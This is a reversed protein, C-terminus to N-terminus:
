ILHLIRCLWITFLKSSCYTILKLSFSVYQFSAYFIFCLSLGLNVLDSCLSVAGLCNLILRSNCFFHWWHGSIPLQSIDPFNISEPEGKLNLLEPGCFHLFQGGDNTELSYPNRNKRITNKRLFIGTRLLSSWMSQVITIYDEYLSFFTVEFLSFTWKSIANSM